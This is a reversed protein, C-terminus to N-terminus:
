EASAASGIVLREAIAAMGPRAPALVQLSRLVSCHSVVVMEHYSWPGLYSYVSALGARVGAASPAEVGSPSGSTPVLPPGRGFSLFPLGGKLYGERVDRM